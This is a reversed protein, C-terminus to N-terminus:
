KLIVSIIKMALFLAKSRHSLEKKVNEDLTGLTNEYGNPVFLPDYGFGKEGVEKNLVVGHM